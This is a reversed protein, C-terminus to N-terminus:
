SGFSSEVVPDVCNFIECDTCDVERVSTSESGHSMKEKVSFLGDVVVFLYLNLSSGKVPSATIENVFASQPTATSPAVLM